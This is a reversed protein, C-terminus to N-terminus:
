PSHPTHMHLDTRTAISFYFINRSGLCIITVLVNCSAGVCAAFFNRAGGCAQHGKRTASCPRPPLVRRLSYCVVVNYMCWKSNSLAGWFNLISACECYNAQDLMKATSNTTLTVMELIKKIFSRPEVLKELVMTRADALQQMAEGKASLVSKEANAISTPDYINTAGNFTQNSLWLILVSMNGVAYNVKPELDSAIDVQTAVKDLLGIGHDSVNEIAGALDTMFINLDGVLIELSCMTDTMGQLITGASTIGVISFTLVVLALIAYSIM